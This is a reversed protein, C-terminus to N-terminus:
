ATLLGFSLDSNERLIRTVINKFSPSNHLSDVIPAHEKVGSYGVSIYKRPSFDTTKLKLDREYGSKQICNYAIERIANLLHAPLFSKILAVSTEEYEKQLSDYDLNLSLNSIHEEIQICLRNTQHEIERIQM